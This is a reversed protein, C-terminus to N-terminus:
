IDFVEGKRPDDSYYHLSISKQKAKIQHIYNDMKGKIGQSYIYEGYDLESLKPMNLSNNDFNRCELSGQIVYFFSQDPHGHISTIAGKDWCILGLWCKKNNVIINRTYSNKNFSLATTQIEKALIQIRDVASSYDEKILLGCLAKFDFDTAHVYNYNKIEKLM